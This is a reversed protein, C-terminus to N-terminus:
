ERVLNWVRDPNAYAQARAAQPGIAVLLDRLRNAAVDADGPTKPSSSAVRRRERLSAPQTGQLALESFTVVESPVPAQAPVQTMDSAQAQRRSEATTNESPPSLPIPQVPNVM